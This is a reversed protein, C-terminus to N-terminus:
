NTLLKEQIVKQITKFEEIIANDTLKILELNTEPYSKILRKQKRDLSNFTQFLKVADIYSLRVIEGKIVLEVFAVGISFLEADLKFKVDSVRSNLDSMLDKTFYIDLGKFKFKNVESYTAIIDLKFNLMEEDICVKNDIACLPMDRDYPQPALLCDESDFQELELYEEETFHGDLPRKGEGKAFALYKINEM